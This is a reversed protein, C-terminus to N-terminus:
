FFNILVPVSRYKTVTRTKTEWGDLRDGAYTILYSGDDQKYPGSVTYGEGRWWDAERNAQSLTLGTRNGVHEKYVPVDYEETTQYPQSEYGTYSERATYSEDKTRYRRWKYLIDAM